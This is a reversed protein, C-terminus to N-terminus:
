TYLGILPTATTNTANVRMCILPLIDGVVVAYTIATGDEDIAVINGIGGAMVVMRQKFNVTDSPTLTIHRRPFSAVTSYRQKM